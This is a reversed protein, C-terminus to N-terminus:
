IHILSLRSVPAGGTVVRRIDPLKINNKLCFSSLRNLLSPSLTTCTVGCAKFQALLAPVDIESPVGVDFGPIVTAVGEALNNLSFIPFVPLDVDGEEYPINSHLAYHQAALFRHTRNAGKPTGSSGTTFTIM